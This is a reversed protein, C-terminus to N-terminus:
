CSVAKRIKGKYIKSSQDFIQRAAIDHGIFNEDNTEEYIKFIQEM